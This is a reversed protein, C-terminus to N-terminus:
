AKALEAALLHVLDAANMPRVLPAGQGAWQAGFGSEGQARAAANLAKGADYARPYAPPSPLDPQRALATFRNALCRAPRGSILRTMVTHHAADSQLHTRYAEDAASEPCALFATGLQAAVAGADLARRIGAGDMIGGAAVVPCRGHQTLERVLALTPLKADPADPDFMGRHGGAEWGQAILVDIGAHEAQAAETGSTVSALLLCGAAKLRCIADNDPLGFHFSVCAPATEVLVELMAPSESLSAYITKLAPPPTTGYQAFVPALADLWVREGIPDPQCPAHVFLNVNFARQTQMRLDLISQRAKDPTLHGVALSGLAGANCVQAALVPTSVGAMPAQILPLELSLRKCFDLM